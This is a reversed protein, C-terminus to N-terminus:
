FALWLYLFLTNNDKASRGGPEDYATSGGNFKNYVTYQLGLRTNQWPVYNVEGIEGSSTPSGTASGAVPASPYLLPDTTGGTQFAGLTFGYRLNPLYSASARVTHLNAKATTANGAALSADLLQHESILSAREIFEGTGRRQEAQADVALDTYRNTPGTVGEPFLKAAFGFTGLMMSTNAAEHQLALRWYPVVGSITNTATNDLPMAAGQPASRYATLETYLVNNFLSYAGLGMVQQELGGDILTAAMPSPAAESGMFPYGWAPVTNWIDQVTPNNHLTLGYIVERSGLTGHNAYRIDVNDLGISGDAGGYTLQTFTGVNPTIQGALFLSMEQPFAASGNQTGAIAKSTSTFGSVVMAALPPIPSLKLSERGKEGPQGITQLGTLTYGNLKFLRGFPTLQPYGYHCASCALGTQRTFAPVKAHLQALAANLAAPTVARDARADLESAFETVRVVDPRPTDGPASAYAPSAVLPFSAALSIAAYLSPTSPLVRM